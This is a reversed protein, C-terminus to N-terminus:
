TSVSAIFLGFDSCRDPAIGVLDPAAHELKAPSTPPSRASTAAISVAPTSRTITPIGFVSGGVTISRIALAIVQRGDVLSSRGSWIGATRETAHHGDVFEQGVGGVLTESVDGCAMMERSSPMGATSLTGPMVDIASPAM